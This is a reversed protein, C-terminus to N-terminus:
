VAFRRRAVVSMALAVCVLAVGIFSLGVLHGSALLHGGLATGFAQGAYLVSTNM